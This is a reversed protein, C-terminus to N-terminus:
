TSRLATSCTATQTVFTCPGDLSSAPARTTGIQRLLSYICSLLSYNSSECWRECVFAARTAARLARHIAATNAARRRCARTVIIAANMADREACAHSLLFILLVCIITMDGTMPIPYRFRM